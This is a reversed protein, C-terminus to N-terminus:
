RTDQASHREPGSANLLTHLNAILARCTYNSTLYFFFSRFNSCSVFHTLTKFYTKFCALSIFTNNKKQPKFPKLATAAYMQVYEGQTGRGLLSLVCVLEIADKKLSLHGEPFLKRIVSENQM